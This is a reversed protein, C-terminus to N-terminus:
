RLTSQTLPDRGIAWIVVDLDNTVGQAHELRLRGDAQKALSKIPAETVVTMGDARMQEVLIEGMAPEFERLVQARRVVLTVDAGLAALMGGLEVAIYGSGVVAVRRPCSELEFFGDSDIGLEAGPVQPWRPAGGCAVVVHDAEITQAGVQVQRPGTFRASGEFLDIGTDDLRKKYLGNLRSVYADRSTKLQGWDFEGRELSFGYDPADDLAHALSAGYWMVKKPVCGVNVCTGGLRGHEIVATKAGYSAARVACAIGGSGGGITILDYRKTM